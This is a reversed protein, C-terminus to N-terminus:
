AGRYAYKELVEENLSVGLGPEDSVHLWGDRPIPRNVILDTVLPSGMMTFEQVPERTLTVNFHLSASVLIGTSWAHPVVLRHHLDALTAIRRAETFGGVRSLDPQLIDIQAREILDRFEEAVTNMEGEALRITTSRALRTYGDFDDPMLAEELWYLDYQEIRRALECATPADWCNGGDIMLLPSEGLGKRAAGIRTVDNVLNQGLTGWGLKMATYGEDVDRKAMAETEAPTDPMLHSAYARVRDRKAGGLLKYIPQGTVKGLIDWLALDIGSMAHIAVGRRGYYISNKYMREWLAGIQLPDQGILLERLGRAVSHSPPTDIVMKAIYPSSDVEGLGVIGADTHIRIILADQTGDARTVDVTPLRLAIAEVDTIKM